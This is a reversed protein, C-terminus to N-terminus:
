YNRCNDNISDVNSKNTDLDSIGKILQTPKKRQCQNVYNCVTNANM